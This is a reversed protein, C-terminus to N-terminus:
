LTNCQKTNTFISIQLLFFALRNRIFLKETWLFMGEKILLKQKLCKCFFFSNLKRVDIFQTPQINYCVHACNSKGTCQVCCIMLVYKIMSWKCYNQKQFVENYFDLKFEGNKDTLLYRFLRPIVLCAKKLAIYVFEFQSTWTASIQHSMFTM